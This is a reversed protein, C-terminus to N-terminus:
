AEPLPGEQLQAVYVDVAENGTLVEVEPPLPSLAEIIAELEIRAMEDLVEECSKIFEDM